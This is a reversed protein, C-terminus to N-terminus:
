SQRCLCCIPLGELVESSHPALRVLPQCIKQSSCPVVGVFAGRLVTSRLPFPIARFDGPTHAGHCLRLGKPSGSTAWSSGGPLVVLQALRHAKHSLTHRSSSLDASVVHLKQLARWRFLAPCEPRSSPTLTAPSCPVETGGPKTPSRSSASLHGAWSCIGIDHGSANRVAAGSAAGSM